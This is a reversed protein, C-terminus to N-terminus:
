SVEVGHWFAVRNLIQKAAEMPEAYYWAADANAEDEVEITYYSADGKWPCHTSSDNEQFHKMVLSERPFYHNGEVVVTDESQALLVGKWIAKM